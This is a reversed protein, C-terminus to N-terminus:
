SFVVRGSSHRGRESDFNFLVRQKTREFQLQLKVTDDPRIPAQFKVQEIRQGASHLAFYHQSWHVVWEIQVVGPLLPFDAFHDPFYCLDAPAKLTLTVQDGNHEAALLEASKKM